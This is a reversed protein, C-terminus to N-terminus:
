RLSFGGTHGTARHIDSRILQVLGVDQHHHWTYGTPTRSRGAAKNAFRFDAARSGTPQIRVDAIDPHRRATFDAM